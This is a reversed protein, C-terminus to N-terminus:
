EPACERHATLLSSKSSAQRGILACSYSTSLFWVQGSGNKSPTGSSPPSAQLAQRPHQRHHHLRLNEQMQRRSDREKQLEVDLAYNLKGLEEIRFLFLIFVGFTPSCPHLYPAM